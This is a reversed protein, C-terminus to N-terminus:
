GVKVIRLHKALRREPPSAERTRAWVIEQSPQGGVGRRFYAASLLGPLMDVDDSMAVIGIDPFSGFYSLDSTIMTDALKQESITENCQRKRCERDAVFACLFPADPVYDSHAMARVLDFKVSTGKHSRSFRKCAEEVYSVFSNPRWNWRDSSWSGYLSIRVSSVSGFQASSDISEARLRDIILEADFATRKTDAQTLNNWDM